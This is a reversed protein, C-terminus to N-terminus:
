SPDPSFGLDALFLQIREVLPYSLRFKVTSNFTEIECGQCFAVRNRPVVKEMAQKCADHHFFSDMESSLVVHQISDLISTIEGQTDWSYSPTMSYGQSAYVSFILCAKQKAPENVHRCNWGFLDNALTKAHKQLGAQAFEPCREMLASWESSLDVKRIFASFDQKRLRRTRDDEIRLDEHTINEVGVAKLRELAITRLSFMGDKYASELADVVKRKIESYQRGIIPLPSDIVALLSSRVLEFEEFLAVPPKSNLSFAPSLDATHIM